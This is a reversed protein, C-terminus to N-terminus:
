LKQAKIILESDLIYKEQLIKFGYKKLIDELSKKNYRKIHENKYGSPQLLGYFFEIIRWIIKNYDPTGIVLIGKPKLIRNIEFFISETDVHEIVESCVICSFVENKFPLNRIDANILFKNSKRIYRLKDISVDVAVANPLDQIIKSSGCGLDAILSDKKIFDKIIKYRKRHWYRQLPIMSYYGREDYDAYNISNREKWLKFFVLFYGLAFNFLKFHTRGSRRSYYTFPIEKIRWGNSYAKILIYPLIEFNKGSISIEQFIEKKYLRFGSTNDKIPLSLIYKFFINFAKSLIYRFFSTKYNGGKVYRSAVIIDADKIHGLMDKIFIPLHSLDADMTLILNGKAIRIGEILAGGYGPQVQTIVTAGKSKAIDITADLSGGDVVIIEYKIGMDFIINKIGEILLGINDAENLTPIIISLEINNM